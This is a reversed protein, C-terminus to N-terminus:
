LFSPRTGIVQKERLTSLEASSLGLEGGLIEENHQGLTPPPTAHWPPGWGAARWPFGPYRKTGTLPHEMEQFFARHALQPNPMLHFADVLPSAPIGAALLQEAAAHAGETALWDRLGADIADHAARRGAADALAPDRALNPNRLLRTLAQWQPDTAAALALWAGDACRYCGQPAAGPGRNTDRTLLRGYASHEIVQEAALNLGPEVLPVEVLMGEGTARRRELALMLAFAAHVGGLPDCAGRVILPQDEYGTIWALGSVQEISPAFGTRDRWPGALGFAPMRLVLLRPNLAHLVEYGLGWHDLVRASFNEAVVDAGAVLRLILERGEPSDINLTVDRKGPNAGHFVHNWEWMVENRVSGAFRMGDPRQISEVKVVDAGLDALIGTAVPGAWFATFDVVRVGALPQPRADGSPQAPAHAVRRPTALEDRLEAGHEGLRPAPRLPPDPRDGLRYPIRPMLFGGPHRVFVARERFHDLHPLNRGHGIPVVPLRMASAIEVIEDVTRERTWAQIIGRIFDLHQMRVSADYFREDEGVDPRGIMLCFDKWQQGTYTCFGVWDDKAPEISPTEISQSASGGHFQSGLDHQVTMSLLMCEFISLDAHRGEGTQRAALWLSLAALAAYTGAAWEGLRGGAAVPGRAPHGRAATGGTAAQLTFETAPRRAWPGTLGFPSISVVCLRPNRAQLAEWTLGREELGGPGFSEVVLDSREAAALALERGESRMLDAVASRKGANLYQFLAGDRDASLTAGSATWRRLPDGDPGELKTVAAGADALLKTAYPGAIETSLDVCRLGDLPGASPAPMVLADV